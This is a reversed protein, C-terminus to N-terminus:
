NPSVLMHLRTVTGTPATHTQVLDCLRNAVLLGRGTLIEHPPVIQGAMVDTIHGAGRIEYVVRDEDSWMRLTAVGPGGHTIANTCVESVALKLHGVRAPDIGSELAHTAVASRVQALRLMDFVMVEDVVLRDVFPRNLAAIVRYPDTYDDSHWRGLVNVIVPHTRNAHAVVHPLQKVDYPCLIAADVGAFAVNILAEHQVALDVEEPSRGVFIPEGIIRVRSPAHERVFARLVWPLIRNPNRGAEAMNVFRVPEDRHESRLASLRPEPVAVLVPEGAELGGRVFSTTGALFEDLDVYYLAAHAFVGPRM